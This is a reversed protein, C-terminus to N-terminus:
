PMGPLFRQEHIKQELGGRIFNKGFAAASQDAGGIAFQEARDADGTVLFFLVFREGRVTDVGCTQLGIFIARIERMM